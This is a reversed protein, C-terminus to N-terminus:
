SQEGPTLFGFFSIMKFFLFIIKNDLIPKEGLCCSMKFSYLVIRSGFCPIYGWVQEWVSLTVGFHVYGTVTQELQAPYVADPVLTYELSFIAPNRYGAEKLLSVWALLFELYFYCSGM